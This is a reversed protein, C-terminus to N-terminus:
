LAFCALCHTNTLTCTLTCMSVKVKGLHEMELSLNVGHLRLYLHGQQIVVTPHSEEEDCVQSLVYRCGGMNFDFSHGDYSRFHTGGMIVCKVPQLAHCARQGDQIACKTGNPCTHNTCQVRNHSVCVCHLQCHEDPYFNEHIEHYVGNYLCGCELNPVCNGDSHFFGPKCFCGEKCKVALSSQNEACDSMHSSCLHYESNPPCTLDLLFFFYELYELETCM